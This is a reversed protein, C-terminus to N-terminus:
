IKGLRKLVALLLAQTGRHPKSRGARLEIIERRSPKAGCASVLDKLTVSKLAPPIKVIWDTRKPDSYETYVNKESHELGEDISLLCDSRLADPEPPRVQSRALKSSYVSFGFQQGKPYRKRWEARSERLQIVFAELPKGLNAYPSYM